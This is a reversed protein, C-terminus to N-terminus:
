SYHDFHDNITTSWVAHVVPINSGSLINDIEHATKHKLRGDTEIFIHKTSHSSLNNWLVFRISLIHALYQWHADGGYKGLKVCKNNEYVPARGIDPGFEPILRQRYDDAMARELETAQVSGGRKLRKKTHGLTALIIYLFCSGDPAVHHKKLDHKRFFEKACMEERLRKPM